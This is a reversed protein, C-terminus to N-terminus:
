WVNDENTMEYLALKGDSKQAIGLIFYNTFIIQPWPWNDGIAWIGTDSQITM